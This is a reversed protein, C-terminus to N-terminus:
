CKALQGRLSSTLSVTSQVVPGLAAVRDNKDRNKISTLEYLTSNAETHAFEKRYSYVRKQFPIMRWPLLCSNSFTTFIMPFFSLYGYVHLKLSMLLYEMIFTHVHLNVLFLNRFYQVSQENILISYKDQSM